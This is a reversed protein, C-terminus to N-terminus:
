RLRAASRRFIATLANPSNPSISRHKPHPAPIFVSEVWEGAARDQKGYAIFFDELAIDRRADGRRLTLRADMAILAPPM